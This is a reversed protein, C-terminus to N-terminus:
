LVNTLPYANKISDQNIRAIFNPDVHLLSSEEEKDEYRVTVMAADVAANLAAKVHMKAFARMMSATDDFEESKIMQEATPIHPQNM